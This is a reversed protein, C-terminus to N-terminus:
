PVIEELREVHLEEEEEEGERCECKSVSGKYWGRNIDVDGGELDCSISTCTVTSIGGVSEITQAEEM